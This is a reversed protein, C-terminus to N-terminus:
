DTNTEHRPNWTVYYEYIEQVRMGYRLKLYTVIEDATLWAFADSVKKGYRALRTIIQSITIGQCDKLIESFDYQDLTQAAKQANKDYDFM